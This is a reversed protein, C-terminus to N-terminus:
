YDSDESKQISNSLALSHPAGLRRYQNYFLYRSPNFSELGRVVVVTDTLPNVGFRSYANDNVNHSMCGQGYIQDVKYHLTAYKKANKSNM